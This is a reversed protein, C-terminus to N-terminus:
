PSTTPAFAMSRPSLSRKFTHSRSWTASLLRRHPLRLSLSRMTSSRPMTLRWGPSTPGSM